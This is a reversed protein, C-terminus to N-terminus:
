CLCAGITATMKSFAGCLFFAADGELQNEQVARKFREYAVFQASLLFANSRCRCRNRGAAIARVQVAGHTVGFIAASFGRFFGRVGEDRVISRLADFVNAYQPAGAAPQLVMRTKVVWFPNTAAATALGAGFACQMHQAAGLPERRGAALRQKAGAYLFFYLGWASVGGLVNIPLGAYLGRAGEAAAITRLAHWTNHYRTRGAVTEAEQAAGVDRQGVGIAILSSELIRFRRGLKGCGSLPSRCRQHTVAFRMYVFMSVFM